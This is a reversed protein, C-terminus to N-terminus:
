CIRATVVDDIKLAFTFTVVASGSLAYDETLKMLQGNLYIDVRSMDFGVASWNPGTLTYAGATDAVLVESWKGKGGGSGSALEVLAGVISTATFATDFTAYEGAKALEYNGQADAFKIYAAAQIKLDSGSALLDGYAGLNIAAFEPSASSRLDQSQSLAVKFGEQAISLGVDAQVTFFQNYAASVISGNAGIMYAKGADAAYDGLKLTDFEVDADTNISQPLSLTIGHNDTGSQAVNVQNDTGLVWSSFDMEAINGSGDVAVPASSLGTVQVAASALKASAIWRAGASEWAFTQEAANGLQIGAGNLDGGSAGSAVTIIKDEIVLEGVNVTVTAGQVLLNGTVTLDRAVSVDESFTSGKVTLIDNTSDYTMSADDALEESAGAFVGRGPTLDSVKVGPAYLHSGDFKVYINDALVKGADHFVLAGATTSMNEVLASNLTARGDVDLNGYAKIAGSLVDLSAAGNAQIKFANIGAVDFIVDGNRKHVFTSGAKNLMMDNSATLVGVVEAVAYAKVRGRLDATGGVDANRTLALDRGGVIDNSASLHGTFQAAVHDFRGASQNTFAADGHIRKIAGAFQGLVGQLDSSAITAAAAASSEVSDIATLSGTIADLRMQTSRAM